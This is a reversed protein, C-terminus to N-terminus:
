ASYPRFQLVVSVFLNVLTINGLWYNKRSYDIIMGWHFGLLWEESSFKWHMCLKRNSDRCQWRKPFWICWLMCTINASLSDHKLSDTEQMRSEGSGLKRVQYSPFVQSHIKQESPCSPPPLLSPIGYKCLCIPTGSWFCGFIQSKQTPTQHHHWLVALRQFHPPPIPILCPPFYLLWSWYYAGLLRLTIKFVWRIFFFRPFCFQVIPWWILLGCPM